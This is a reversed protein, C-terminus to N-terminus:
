ASDNGTCSPQASRTIEFPDASGTVRVRLDTSEGRNLRERDITGDLALVVDRAVVELTEVVQGLQLSFNVRAQQGIQLIM